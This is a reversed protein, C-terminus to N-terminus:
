RVRAAWPMSRSGVGLIGRAAQSSPAAVAIAAEDSLAQPRLMLGSNVRPQLEGRLVRGSRWLTLPRLINAALGNLIPKTIPLRFLFVLRPGFRLCFIGGIDRPFVIM